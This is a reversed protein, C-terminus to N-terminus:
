LSDRLQVIRQQIAEARDTFEADMDNGEAALTHPALWLSYRSEYSRPLEEAPCAARSQRILPQSGGNAMVRSLMM